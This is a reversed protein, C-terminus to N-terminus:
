RGQQRVQCINLDTLQFFVRYVLTNLSRVYTIDLNTLTYIQLFNYTFILTFLFINLLQKIQLQPLCHPRLHRGESKTKDIMARNFFLLGVHQVM